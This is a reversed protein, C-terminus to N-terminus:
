LFDNMGELSMRNQHGCSSCTYDLEHRLTPMAEVFERIKAFQEGSLSEIFEMIEAESEDRFNIREEPTEVAEICRAVMKFTMETQSTFQGLDLIDNYRPWRLSLTIDDTISVKSAVDPVEIQIAEIPIVVDNATDCESCKLGVKTTEGVSKARIRTFLYEVDFTTLKNKDIPDQVCSEITDVVANMAQAQDQSEMALMLVKEEKVLYPRFRVSQQTSPIVVDYKPVNNLKPLAM